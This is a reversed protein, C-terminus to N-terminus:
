DNPPLDASVFLTQATFSHLSPGKFPSAFCQPSPTNPCILEWYAQRLWVELWTWTSVRERGWQWIRLLPDVLFRLPFFFSELLYLIQHLQCAGRFLRLMRWLAMEIPPSLCPPTFGVSVKHGRSACKQIAIRCAQARVKEFGEKFTAHERTQPTRPSQLLLRGLSRVWARWPTVQLAMTNFSGYKDGSEVGIQEVQQVSFM